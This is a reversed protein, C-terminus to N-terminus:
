PAPRFGSVQHEATLGEDASLKLAQLVQGDTGVAEFESTGLTFRYELEFGKELLLQSIRQNPEERSPTMPSVNPAWDNRNTALFLDATGEPVVAIITVGVFETPEGAEAGSGTGPATTQGCAAAVLLALASFLFRAM